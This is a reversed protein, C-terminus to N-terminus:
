PAAANRAAVAELLERSHADTAEVRQRVLDVHFRYPEVKGTRCTVELTGRFSSEMQPQCDVTDTGARQVLEQNISWRDKPGKVALLAVAREYDGQDFRQQLALLTFALIAIM